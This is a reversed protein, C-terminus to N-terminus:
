QHGGPKQGRPWALTLWSDRGLPPIHASALPGEHTLMDPDTEGCPGGQGQNGGPHGSCQGSPRGTGWAVLRPTAELRLSKWGSQQGARALWCVLRQLLFALSRPSWWVSGCTLAHFSCTCVCQGARAWARSDAVGEAKM